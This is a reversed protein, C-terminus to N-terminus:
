KEELKEFERCGCFSDETMLAECEEIEGLEIEDDSYITGCHKCKYMKYGGKDKM